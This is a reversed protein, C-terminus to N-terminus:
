PSTHYRPGVSQRRVRRCPLIPASSGTVRSWDPLSPPVRRPHGKLLSGRHAGVVVDVEIVARDGAPLERALLDHLGAAVEDRFREEIEAGGRDVRGGG